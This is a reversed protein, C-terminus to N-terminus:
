EAIVGAGLRHFRHDLIMAVVELVHRSAWARQDILLEPGQVEIVQGRTLLVRYRNGNMAVQRRQRRVQTFNGGPFHLVKSKGRGSHPNRDLRM